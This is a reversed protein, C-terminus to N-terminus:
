VFLTLDTFALSRNPRKLLLPLYISVFKRSGKSKRKKKKKKKPAEEGAQTNSSAEPKNDDNVVKADGGNSEVDPKWEEEISPVPGDVTLNDVPAGDIDLGKFSVHLDKTNADILAM